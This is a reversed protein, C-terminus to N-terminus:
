VMCALYVLLAEVKRSALGTVPEGDHRISLGGLTSIELM